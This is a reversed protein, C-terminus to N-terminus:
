KLDLLVRQDHTESLIVIFNWIFFTSQNIKMKVKAM